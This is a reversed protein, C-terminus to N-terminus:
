CPAASRPPFYAHLRDAPVAVTEGRAAARRLAQVQTTAQHLVASIGALDVVEPEAVAEAVAQQLRQVEREVERKTTM